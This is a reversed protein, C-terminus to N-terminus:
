MPARLPAIQNFMSFTVAHGPKDGEVRHVYGDSGVYVTSPKNTKSSTMRYAHLSEGGVSKMGLDTATIKNTDDKTMHIWDKVDSPGGGATNQMKMWSRGSPKVYMTSGIVIMEMGRATMHMSNPKVFDMTGAKEMTLRCSNVSAFKVMAARVDDTASADVPPAFALTALAALAVVAITRTV